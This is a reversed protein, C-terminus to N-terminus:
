QVNVSVAQSAGIRNTLVASVSRVTDTLTTVNVLDGALTIPITATFQSGFAASAASQYWANFSADAPIAITSTTVNEGSTPTFTLAIQSIQRSTAYGTVLLQFGTTTKATIQLALLQPAGSAVTLSLSPPDTPTLVIASDTQFSPTLVIAGAVTGTQLRVTTQGTSFVADRQGAPISFNVTRGGVAFQVAPDNAFVDSNFVMTLTGRLTLPYAQALSLGVGLQQGPQQAGTAGTFRYESIPPPQTAVGTLSFSLSDVRLTGTLSGTATPLFAVGFEFTEGPGLAAPLRPVTTTAFTTGTAVVGVSNVASPSTGTNTIVFRVSSTQGVAAPPFIISGGNVITTTVPGTVYAYTLNPGLGNSVVDFSDDGIRLRGTFRGPAAPTFTLTVAAAGGPALVTPLFPADSVTYGAGQVGIVTIRGDANGTNRVRVTISSKDGVAVDPVAVTSGKALATAGNGQVLEYTFVSGTSSGTLSFTVTRDVFEIRVTGTSSEIVTPAYRVAFRVVGGADVTTPPSPLSTLSFAAGASVIEGVTGAGSGRNTIVVGASATENVATAPFAITGGSQIPTANASPPPQYALTFDPAVGTLSLGTTGTTPRNAPNLTYFLRIAGSARQGSSPRFRLTMTFGDNTSFVSSPDPVGTVSFDTSGTLEVRTVSVQSASTNTVQLTGDLSRGVGDAAFLITSNEALSQATGSVQSRFSFPNQAQLAAAALLMLPAILSLRKM